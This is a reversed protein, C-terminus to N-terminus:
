RHRSSLFDKAANVRSALYDSGGQDPHLKKMLARHARRIADADAGPQLGLIQYAEQETMAGGKADPRRGPDADQEARERWTPFRRDLYAELLRAGDPDAALSEAWLASLAAEPLADLAAGKHLGALVTGRIAGSDHDLEMEVTASRVRSTAGPAPRAAGPPRAWSPMRSTAWSPLAIGGWGLLWAGGTGVLVAADIRGRLMLVGAVVLAAAGGARKLARAAVAPNARAAFKLLWWLGAVVCAGLVLNIL